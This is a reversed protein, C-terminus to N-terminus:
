KLVQRGIEICDYHFTNVCKDEM